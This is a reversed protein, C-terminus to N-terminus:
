ELAEGANEDLFHGLGAEQWLSQLKHQIAPAAEGYVIMFNRTNRKARRPDTCTGLGAISRIMWTGAEELEEQKAAVNGLQGCTIAASHLNGDRESADISKLYWYRATALEYQTEALRGLQHSTMGISSWDGSAEWVALAKLLCVRAPEFRQELMAVLGLQHWTTASERPDPSKEKIALARLLWDSAEALKGDEQEVTGLQHYTEVLESEDVDAPGKRVDISKHYWRRAADYDQQQQALLGLQHYTRGLGQLNGEREQLLSSKIYWEHAQPFDRSALAIAGLQHHLTAVRDLRGAKESLALARLTHSRAAEFNRQKEAVMGLQHYAAAEWGSDVRPAFQALRTLLAFAEELDGANQAWSALAQSLACLAEYMALQQSLQLALHLSGQFFPFLRHQTSNLKPALVDAIVAMGGTFARQCKEGASERRLYSTLLPHLEYVSGFTEWMLGARCLVQTLRDIDPETWASNIDRAMSLLFECHLHSEHLSVLELLPRLEEPLEGRVLQLSALLQSQEESETLGLEAINRRLVECITTAPMQRLKPLLVRIALPHGRLQELLAPLGPDNLTSELGLESLVHECYEWREEAQLGPLKLDFRLTSPIPAESSRTILIVKSRTGCILELFRVLQARDEANFHADASEFNDWVAVLRQQRCTDALFELKNPTAAFTEGSIVQGMSNLVGQTTRLNRFDVWVAHDLGGTEDLWQIFRRVLTTKGVGSLGQLLVCPAKRYLARELAILPGARGVFQLERARAPTEGPVDPERTDPAFTIQLPTQQYLVPVVWDQFDYPGRLSSRTKHAFMRCRGQRVAETLSGSQFLHEYFSSFFARAGAAYLSYSMALVSHIGGRLLATAVAAFADESHALDASRCANLVMAPVTYEHLVASLRSGTIPDPEGLPNEFILCGEPRAAAAGPGQGVGVAGHGDFHIIHYLNPHVQLHEQLQAFTPPRLVHVRVPLNQSRVLELLPHAISRYGVDASFPRALILLVHLQKTALPESSVPAALQKLRRELCCRHSIFAAAGTDYLAEWPWSLVAPDDSCVQFSPPPNKSVDRVGQGNFLARYADTGWRQLAELANNARITEPHSPYDLFQELYWRLESM